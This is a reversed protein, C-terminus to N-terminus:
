LQSRRRASFYLLIIGFIIMPISLLQGMTFWDQYLYGIHNDPLRVFEVVFRFLGYLILFISSLTMKPLRSASLKQMIIFLILGELLAEYLMSPHRPVEDVSPFIVGWNGNTPIGYLEGNIFNGIRGLGLAIPIYIVISDSIQFFSLNEKKSFYYFGFIAGILGGHFSMGGEWLYFIKVPNELYYDLGYFLIYGLRGGILLAILSFILLNEAFEISFNIRGKKIDQKLMYDIILFSIVYMIGYWYISISWFSLLIPDINHIYIM